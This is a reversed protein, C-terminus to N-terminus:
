WLAAIRVSAECARAGGPGRVRARGHRDLDAGLRGRDRTAKIAAPFPARYNSTCITATAVAKPGTRGSGSREKSGSQEYKHRGFRSASQPDTAPVLHEGRVRTESRRADGDM